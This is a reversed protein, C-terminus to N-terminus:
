NLLHRHLEYRYISPRMTSKPYFRIDNIFKDCKKDDSCLIECHRIIIISILHADDFDKSPEIEKLEKEKNNIEEDYKQSDDIKHKNRLEKIIGLFRNICNRLERRYTDGGYVWIGKGNILSQFVPQYDPFVKFVKHIVNTDIVLLM